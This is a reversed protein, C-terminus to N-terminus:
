ECIVVKGNVTYVIEGDESLAGCEMCEVREMYDFEDKSAIVEHTEEDINLFTKIVNQEIFNRKNGCKKCLYM